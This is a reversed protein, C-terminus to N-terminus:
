LGMDEQAVERYQHLQQRASPFPSIHIVSKVKSSSYLQCAPM